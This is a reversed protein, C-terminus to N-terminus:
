GSLGSTLVLLLTKTKHQKLEIKSVYKDVLSDVGNFVAKAADGVCGGVQSEPCQAQGM